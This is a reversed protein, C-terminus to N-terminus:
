IQLRIKRVQLAAWLPALSRTASASDRRRATAVAADGQDAAGVDWRSDGFTATLRVSPLRWEPSEASNETTFSCGVLECDVAPQSLAFARDCSSLPTTLAAHLRECSDGIAVVAALLFIAM